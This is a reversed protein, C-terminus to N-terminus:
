RPAVSMPGGAAAQLLLRVLAEPETVMPCHGTAMEVVEFGPISRVRERMAAITPYAPETCDIFSRPLAAWRAGDFPLPDRYPGFPHPVQRRLLRERDAGTSGFDAPDPPPLAGDNAQATTPACRKSSTRRGPCAKCAAAQLPRPVRAEDSDGDDDAMYTSGEEEVLVGRRSLLQMLRTIIKHLM